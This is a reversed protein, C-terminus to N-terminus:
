QPRVAIMDELIHKAAQESFLAGIFGIDLNGKKTCVFADGDEISLSFIEHNLLNKVTEQSQSKATAQAEILDFCNRTSASVYSIRIAPKGEYQSIEITSPRYGSPTNSSNPIYLTVGTTKAVGIIAVAAADGSKGTLSITSNTLRALTISLVLATTIPM